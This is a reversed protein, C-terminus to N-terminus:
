SRTAAAAVGTWQQPLPPGDNALTDAPVPTWSAIALDAAGRDAPSLEKGVEDRRVAAEQDGQRAALAFWRYAAAPDAAVGLGRVYLVALNFQSDVLGHRAAKEFWSVARGLDRGEGAESLLVALNHMAKVHGRGAARDYWAKATDRSRTVGIGREYLTGLRFEAPALGANAAATLWPVAAAPDRTVGVGDLLAVAVELAARPDGGAAAERLGPSGLTTPLTAAGPVTAPAATFAAGAATADPARAISGTTRPDLLTPVGDAVTSTTESGSLTLILARLPESAFGYAGGVLGVVAAALLLMRRTGLGAAANDAETEPFPSTTEPALFDPESVAPRRRGFALVSTSPVDPETAPPSPRTAAVPETGDSPVPGVITPATEATQDRRLLPHDVARRAAAILRSTRTPPAAETVPAAVAEPAPEPLPRAVTPPASPRRSVPGADGQARTENAGTPEPRPDRPAPARADALRRDLAAVAREIGHLRDERDGAGLGDLRRDLKEIRRVLDAVVPMTEAGASRAATKVEGALRALASGLEDFQAVIGGRSLEGLEARMAAVDRALSEGGTRAPAEAIRRVDGALRALRTDLAAVADPVPATELREAIWDIRRRLADIGPDARTDAVAGLRDLVADQGAEIAYLRRDLDLDVVARGLATLDTQVADLRDLALPGARSAREVRVVLEDLAARDRADLSAAPRAAVAEQLAALHDQMADLRDLTVSGLSDARDLRISLADLAARDEPALSAVPRALVAESLRAVDDRVAAIRDDTRQRLADVREALSRFHRDIEDAPPPSPREPPRMAPRVDARAHSRVPPHDAPHDLHTGAHDEARAEARAKERQSQRLAETFPRRTSPPPADESPRRPAPRDARREPTREAPEADPRRTREVADLQTIIRDVMSAIDSVPKPEELPPAVAPRPAYARATAARAAQPRSAEARFSDERFSDARPAEPAYAAIARRAAARVPEAQRVAERRWSPRDDRRWESDDDYTM